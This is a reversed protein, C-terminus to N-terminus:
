FPVIDFCCMVDDAHSLIALPTLPRFFDAQIMGAEHRQCVHSTTKGASGVGGGGAGALRAALLLLFLKRISNKNSINQFPGLKFSARTSVGLVQRPQSSLSNASGRHCKLRSGNFSFQVSTNNNNYLFHSFRGRRYSFIRSFLIVSLIVLFRPEVPWAGLDTSIGQGKKARLM